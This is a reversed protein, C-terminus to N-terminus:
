FLWDPERKPKRKLREKEAAVGGDSTGGISTNGSLLFPYLTVSVCYPKGVVGTEDHCYIEHDELQRIYEEAVDTGYMESLKRYMAFRNLAVADEKFLETELTAINKREVNANPDM